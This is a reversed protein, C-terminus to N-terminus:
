TKGRPPEDDDRLWDVVESVRVLSDGQEVLSALYAGVIRDVEEARTDLLRAQGRVKVAAAIAKDHAEDAM